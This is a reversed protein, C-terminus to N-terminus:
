CPFRLGWRRAAHHQAEVSDSRMVQKYTRIYNANRRLYEWALSRMPVAQLEAYDTLSRWDSSPMAPGRQSCRLHAIGLWSPYDPRCAQPTRHWVVPMASHAVGPRANPTVAERFSPEVLSRWSVEAAHGVPGALVHVEPEFTSFVGHNFVGCIGAMSPMSILSTKARLRRAIRRALPRECSSSACLAPM